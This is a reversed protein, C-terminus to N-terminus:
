QRQMLDTFFRIGFMLQTIALRENSGHIRGLDDPHLIWPQFYYIADAIQAMHRADTTANILGTTMPTGSALSTMSAQLAQYGPGTTSSLPAPNVGVKTVVEVNCDSITTRIYALIQDVTNGPIIRANLVATAISPLVNDKVGATLITPVLTTRNAADDSVSAKRMPNRRLELPPSFPHDALQVLASSLMSIATTAPPMSAHGGPGRATLQYTAYGKQGIGIKAVLRQQPDSVDTVISSGEDLVWALRVSRQALLDAINRAGRLGGVEEDAGLAFYITRKPTFNAALLAESAEFLSVLIGKDDLSGRGWVFGDAITGGFSSQTWQSETGAEIPVVDQHAMFMVGPLTPDSGQWKYLLAGGPVLEHQLKAATKPYTADLWARFNAFATLDDDASSQHSITRFQIASALHQAALPAQAQVRSCAFLFLLATVVKVGSRFASM